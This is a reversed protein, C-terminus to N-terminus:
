RAEPGVRFWDFLAWGTTACGPACPRVGRGQCWGCGRALPSRIGSRSSRATRRSARQLPLDGGRAVEVRLEVPGAGIARAAAEDRDRLRRGAPLRAALPPRWRRSRSVTLVAYDRGMVVLGAEEGRAAVRPSVLTTAMFAPAPLKQLLLHGRTGSRTAQAGRGSRRPLRLAGGVLSWWTARPEGAVAVAPRARATSSTARRRSAARRRARAAEDLSGGARRHRRRRPRRRDGALRGEMADAAPARRTRLRRPGPLPRVLRAARRDDVWAGQHPGNVATPGQALVIRDEYPGLVNALAARGALGDARRGRPRLHLVLRRAQLVEAGRDDPAEDGGDFVTTGEGVVRRGDPSLRACPSSRRQLRRPEEGVRARSVRQRRRGVAPVPRDLGRAEKVLTPPEWPGRPESAGHTM